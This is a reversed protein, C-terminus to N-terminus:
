KRKFGKTIQDIANKPNERLEILMMFCGEGNLYQSKESLAKATYGEICVAGDTKYTRNKIWYEFESAIDTNNELKTMKQKILVGPIKNKEYFERIISSM